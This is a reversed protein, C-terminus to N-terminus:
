VVSKRDLLEANRSVEDTPAEKKTKTFLRSQRMGIAIKTTM